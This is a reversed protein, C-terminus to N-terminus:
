IANHMSASIILLDIVKEYVYTNYMFNSFYLFIFIHIIFKLNRESCACYICNRYISSHISPRMSLCM